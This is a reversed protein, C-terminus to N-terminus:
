NPVQRRIALTSDDKDSESEQRSSTYLAPHPLPPPTVSGAGAGQRADRGTEGPGLLSLMEERHDEFFNRLELIETDIQAALSPARPRAPRRCSM